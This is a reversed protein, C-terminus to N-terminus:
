ELTLKSFVQLVRALVFCRAQVLLPFSNQVQHKGYAGLIRVNRINVPMRIPPVIESVVRPRTGKGPILRSKYLMGIQRLDM